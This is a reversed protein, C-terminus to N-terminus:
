QVRISQAASKIIAGVYLQKRIVSVHVCRFRELRATCTTPEPQIEFVQEVTTNLSTLIFLILGTDRKEM